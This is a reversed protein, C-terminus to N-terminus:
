QGKEVDPSFVSVIRIAKLGLVAFGVKWCLYGANIPFISKQHLYRPAVYFYLALWSNSM